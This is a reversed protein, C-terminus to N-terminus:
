ERKRWLLATGTIAVALMAISVGSLTIFFQYTDILYGLLFAIAPGGRSVMYYAGLVTSRKQPSVHSIIYSEVVPMGAHMSTGMLLLVAYLSVGLSVHTLLYIAPGSILGVAIIVPIRGLRDSLYGGLPGGWIGGFYAISLLAAGQEESAGLVDVVYLPTFLLTSQVLVQSAVGISIFALLRRLDGPESPEAASAAAEKRRATGAYGTKGLLLYFIIGFSLTPIAVAIFTGRWGLASAIGAAILPALFFSATGGIQHIGLARGRHEPKVSASVLPSASPHYGGGALGMVVLLLAMVIYNSSLGILLGAFAVGAVGITLLIRTGFRGAALGAPLQSIGYAINYAFLLGGAQTYSLFSDRRIFPLLPPLLATVLHHSFHALVFLPLM